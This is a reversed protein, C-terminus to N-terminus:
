SDPRNIVITYIAVETTDESLVNINVFNAAGATLSIQHGENNTDADVPLVVVTADPDYATPTVTVSAVDAEVDARYLYTDDDFDLEVDSISLSRLRDEDPPATRDIEITHVTESSGDFSTATVTVTVSDGTLEIQHGGANDDADAPVIEVTTGAHRPTVTITTSNKEHAPGVSHTTSDSDFDLNLGSLRVERVSSDDVVPYDHGGVTSGTCKIYGDTTLGCFFHKYGTSVSEYAFGSPLRGGWLYHLRSWQWCDSTNDSKVGCTRVESVSVDIYPGTRASSEMYLVERNRWTSRRSNKYEWCQVSGDTKIGCFHQWAGGHGSVATFDGEPSKGDVDLNPYFSDGFCDVQNDFDVACVVRRSVAIDLYQKDRMEAPIDDDLGPAEADSSGTLTWIVSQPNITLCRGPLAM